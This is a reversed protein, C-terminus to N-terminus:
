FKYKLNTGYSINNPTSQIRNFLAVMQETYKAEDTLLPSNENIWEEKGPVVGLIKIFAAGQQNLAINETKEIAENVTRAQVCCVYDRCVNWNNKAGREDKMHVYYVVTPKFESAERKQREIEQKAWEVYWNLVHDEVPTDYEYLQFVRWSDLAYKGVGKMNELDKLPINTTGRFRVADIWQLSFEIWAKARKNYFGLPKILESIEKQDAIALKEATPYKEFFHYRVQDVQKHSTQNLMFCVMLMKWPDDRYEEQRTNYPSIQLKM